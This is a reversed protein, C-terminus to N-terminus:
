GSLAGTAVTTDRATQAEMEANLQAGLLVVTSSLWIWTMFGIIAGLSGYTKNYNGFHSVYWSFGLSLGIWGLAAIAGGWTVWRWRALRRHPGYRYLVALAMMLGVVILPWKAINVVADFVGRIHLLDFVLPVVVILGLGLLLVVIAGITFALSLATVMVFGREDPEAYVDSLSSLMAKTGQNASWLATLLGVVAGISLGSASSKILRQVQERIIDMGGSPVFTGVQDLHDQITSPNAFLGYISVIATIAPFLSLLAYFTIGAAQSMLENKSFMRATRKAIQWWGRAPIEYPQHADHGPKRERAPTEPSTKPTGSPSSKTDGTAANGRPGLADRVRSVDRDTSRYVLAFGALASLISFIPLRSKRTM